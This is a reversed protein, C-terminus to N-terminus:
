LWEMQFNLNLGVIRNLVNYNVIDSQEFNSFTRTFDFYTEVKIRRQIPVAATARFGFTMDKRRKTIKQGNNFFLSDNTDQRMSLLPGAGFEINRLRALFAGYIGIDNHSYTLSSQDVDENDVSAHVHEIYTGFTIELWSPYFLWEYEFRFHDGAQTQSTPNYYRDRYIIAEVSQRYDSSFAIGMVGLGWSSRYDSYGLYQETGFPTFVLNAYDGAELSVPLELRSTLSDYVHNSFYTSDALSLQAGYDGWETQDRLRTQLAFSNGYSPAPAIDSGLAESTPNSTYAGGILAYAWISTKRGLALPMQDELDVVGSIYDEAMRQISKSRAFLRVKRWLEIAEKPNSKALARAHLVFILQDNLKRKEAELFLEEQESTDKLCSGIIALVLPSFANMKHYRFEMEIGACDDKEYRSVISENLQFGRLPEAAEAFPIAGFAALAVLLY